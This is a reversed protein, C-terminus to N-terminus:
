FLKCRNNKILDKITKKNNVILIIGDIMLSLLPAYREYVEKGFHSKLNKMVYTKKDDGSYQPFAKAIKMYELIIEFSNIGIDTNM